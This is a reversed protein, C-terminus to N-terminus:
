GAISYRNKRREVLGDHEMQRLVNDIWDIDRGTPDKWLHFAAEGASLATNHLLKLIRGRYLRRPIGKRSPENKRVKNERQLFLKSFASACHASVPCEPCKPQQMTCYASGLDMLAQNWDYAKKPPLLREAIEWAEKDPVIESSSRVKRTWRTVIRRVNVDVVPVNQGFAFCAVAHATYKGIGPLMRLEEITNPIRRPRHTVVIRSLEQLRIARNNYGLGSWSRLVDARSASALSQFSPFKKLWRKYHEVVRNVQTQQLMFESVLIRYPDHTTRWPLSRSHRAYWQLLKKHFTHFSSKKEAM